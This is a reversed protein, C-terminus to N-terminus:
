WKYALTAYFNRGNMPIRSGQAIDPNNRVRYSGGLHDFHQQDTVNEIGAGIVVGTFPEYKARLHLLAYGPTEQENNFRAVNKQRDYFEGEIAAMWGSHEFVLQVRGNLPAIRYLDDDAGGVQKGQVYNLGADIRWHEDFRYGGEIDLGWLQANINNFQLTGKGLGTVPTGQIYDNVYHYFVRPAVYISDTHFEAGLEFQYANENKLDLNGVYNRGDALGATAESPSWLYLEQYSPARNKRAFGIELDLNDTATYRFISVLDVDHFHKEHNADNFRTALLRENVGSPLMRRTTRVNGSDAYTYTYRIGFEASLDDMLEGKWEAFGSYRDRSVDNFNDIGIPVRRGMGPMFVSGSIFADHNSQDGNIGLTLEGDFLPMTFALDLGGGEVETRNQILLPAGNLIRPARLTNNNMKHRMNQYYFKGKLQYGDGMDWQYSADYLGGRVYIIDMPLAPTGANRTNNDTYHLGFEHGDRQYGYGVMFVERDYSTPRVKKDDKFKYDEGEEKTGGIYIKHNQNALSGFGVAYYGDDVSSYGSSIIGSTEIGDGDAFRGKKTELRMAGGITDIGSSVPAIGRYVQLSETLAAPIHSLPPDMSNPGVEKMNAGDLSINIRNGFMGRYQAIGTLPGSRNVNAGPVHKLLSAADKLGSSDPVVGLEGPRKSVGEVVITPLEEHEAFVQLPLSLLTATIIALKTELIM